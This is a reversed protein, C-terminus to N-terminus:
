KIFFCKIVEYLYFIISGIFIYFGFPVKKEKEKINIIFVSIISLILIIFSNNGYFLSIATLLKVDGFGMKKNKWFYFTIFFMIISSIFSLFNFNFISVGIIILITTDPIIFKFFDYIGAFLLSNLVIIDYWKNNLTLIINIFITTGILCWMFKNLLLKKM